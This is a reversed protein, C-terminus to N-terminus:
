RTTLVVRGIIESEAVSVRGSNSALQVTGDAAVGTVRALWVDDGHRYAVIAGPQADAIKSVLIRAGRPVEPSVVDTPVRYVDAVATKISVLTVAVLAVIALGTILRRKRV